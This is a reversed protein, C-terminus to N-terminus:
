NPLRIGYTDEFAEAARRFCSAPARFLGAGIQGIGAEKHAIGTNFVPLIRTHLVKEIDIGTPTGRYNLFPLRYYRHKSHTIETMRDVMEIAWKTTGGVFETIAPASAMAFAGVGTCETVYSDGLVPCADDKSFGEFYRGKARPSASGFWTYPPKRNGLGSVRISFESGNTTVATVIKSGKVGHSADLSAKAAAMSLNLFFHDNGAMFELADALANGGYGARVMGPAITKFFIATASKNRNHCEDGRMLAESIVQRLKIGGSARIGDKLIPGLTEEMWKLRRLVTKDFAGFRLTKIKGVGENINTYAKNGYKKNEIVFVPMSPSIVGAMPAVADNDHTPSFHVEGKEVMTLAASRNAALGEYMLAGLVAGRTPGPIKDWSIPPGSHLLTYKTLGPLVKDARKVDVLWPESEIIRTTAEDDANELARALLIL